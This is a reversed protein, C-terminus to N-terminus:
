QKVEETIKKITLGILGGEVREVHAMYGHDNLKCNLFAFFRRGCVVNENEKVSEKLIDDLNDM